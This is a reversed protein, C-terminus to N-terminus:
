PADQNLRAQLAQGYQPFCADRFIIQDVWTAQDGDALEKDAAKGYEACDDLSWAKATTAIEARHSACGTELAAYRDRNEQTDRKRLAAVEDMCKKASYQAIEAAWEMKLGDRKAAYERADEVAAKAKRQENWAEAKNVFGNLAWLMTCLITTSIFASKSVVYQEEDRIQTAKLQGIEWKELRRPPLRDEQVNFWTDIIRQNVKEGAEKPLDELKPRKIFLDGYFSLLRSAFFQKPKGRRLQIFIAELIM